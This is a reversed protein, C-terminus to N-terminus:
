PLLIVDQGFIFWLTLLVLSLAVYAAVAVQATRLAIRYIM